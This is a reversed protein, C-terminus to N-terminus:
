CYAKQVACGEGAPGCLALYRKIVSVIDDYVSYMVCIEEIMLAEFFHVEFGSWIIRKRPINGMSNKSCLRSCERRQLRSNALDENQQRKNSTPKVEMVLLEHPKKYEFELRSKCVSRRMLPSLEELFQSVSEKDAAFRFNYVADKIDPTPDKELRYPNVLSYLTSMKNKSMGEHKKKLKWVNFFKHKSGQLPPRALEKRSIVAESDSTEDNEQNGKYGEHSPINLDAFEQALIGVKNDLLAQCYGKLASWTWPDNRITELDKKWLKVASPVEDKSSDQASIADADSSSNSSGRQDFIRAGPKTSSGQQRPLGSGQLLEPWRPCRCRHFFHSSGPQDSICAVPKKSSGQDRSSGQDKSSGQYKSDQGGFAEGDSSSNPSGPQDSVRAVQKRSSGQHKSSDWFTFHELFNNAHQNM